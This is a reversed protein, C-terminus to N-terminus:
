HYNILNISARLETGARRRTKCTPAILAILSIRFGPRQFRDRKGLKNFIVRARLSRKIARIQASNLALIPLCPKRGKTPLFTKSYPLIKQYNKKKIPRRKEDLKAFNECLCVRGSIQYNTLISDLLTADDFINLIMHDHEIVFNLLHYFIRFFFFHCIFAFRSYFLTTFEVNLRVSETCETKIIWTMWTRSM